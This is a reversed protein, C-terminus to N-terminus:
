LGSPTVPLGSCTNQQIPVSLSASAAPAKQETPITRRAARNNNPLGDCQGTRGPRRISGLPTRFPAGAPCADVCIACDGCQCFYSSPTTKLPMDTLVSTLRQASGFQPTILLSNKAIWGFGALAAVSKHPVLARGHQHTRVHTTTQAIARYGRSSSGAHRTWACSM